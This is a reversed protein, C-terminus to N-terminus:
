FSYSVAASGIFYGGDNFYAAEAADETDSDLMKAYTGAARLSVCENVTYTGTLGLTLDSLGSDNLGLYYGHYDGNAYGISASANVSLEEIGLDIGQSVAVSGYIAGDADDIDFSIAITPNLPANFAVTLSIERTAPYNSTSSVGPYLYQLMGVTTSVVESELPLDWLLMLDVESFQGGNQLLPHNDTLDMNAWTILTLGSENAVTLSPQLVAEDNLILGRFPYASLVPVDLTASAAQAFPTFAAFTVLVVAAVLKISTRM